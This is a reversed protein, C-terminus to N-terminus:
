PLPCTPNESENPAGDWGPPGYAGAGNILDVVELGDAPTIYDTPNLDPDYSRNIDGSYRGWVLATNGNLADFFADVDAAWTSPDANVNGPSSTFRGTSKKGDTDTYTITTLAGATIPKLLTITYTGIPSEVVSDIVNDADTTECLSFCIPLADRPGYATIVQIGELVGADNPDHPRAADVVGNPPDTPEHPSVPDTFTINGVPCDVPVCTINLNGPERGGVNDALLISYCDGQVVDIVLKSGLGCDGLEDASCAIPGETLPPCLCEGEEGSAYIALNTDPDPDAGCTEVTLTGSCTATYKYWKDNTMTPICQELPATMTTSTFSFATTGDTIVQADPCYDGLPPIPQENCPATIDLRYAVGDPVVIKSAVM